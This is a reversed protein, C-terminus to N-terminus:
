IITTLNENSPTVKMEAKNCGANRKDEEEMTVALLDIEATTLVKQVGPSKMELRGVATEIAMYNDRNSLFRKRELKSLHNVQLAALVDNVYRRLSREPLRSNQYKWEKDTLLKLVDQQLELETYLQKKTPIPVSSTAAVVHHIARSATKSLDTDPTLSAPLARIVRRVDNRISPAITNISASGNVVQLSADQVELKKLQLLKQEDSLSEDVKRKRVGTM